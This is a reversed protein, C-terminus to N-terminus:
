IRGKRLAGLPGTSSSSYGGESDNEPVRSFPQLDLALWLQWRVETSWRVRGVRVM